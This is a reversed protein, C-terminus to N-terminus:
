LNTPEPTPPTALRADPATVPFEINEYRVDAIVKFTAIAVHQTSTFTGHVVSWRGGIIKYDLGIVEDDGLTRLEIHAPLQSQADVQVDSIFLGSLGPVPDITLHPANQTSDAAFRPAWISFYPVVVDVGASPQPIDITYPRTRQLTIVVNKLNAQWSFNFRSWPDFYPIIPFANGTREGGSPLDRMVAFDDLERVLVHRNIDQTRGLSPATVHTYEDYVIYAPRNSTYANATRNLLLALALDPSLM